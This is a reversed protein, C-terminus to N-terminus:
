PIVGTNRLCQMIAEASKGEHFFMEIRKRSAASISRSLKSDSLITEIATAIDLPKGPAILLGTKGHEVLEPVGGVRTAVVPVGVAMAEMTAVGLAEEMSALVFVHANELERCVQLESVAGLLIVNEDLSSQAVQQELSFRTRGGPSDDEGAIRLAVEIGRSKLLRVAEVVDTQRKGPNLRGCSFVRCREGPKWPAYSSSRCFTKTDVGMPAKKILRPLHGWPQHEVDRILSDAVVICFAAHKWKEGQNPGYFSLNGHLTLSYTIGSLLYAYLAINASDACSHVHVHRWGAERSRRALIAGCFALGLHRIRGKIGEAEARRIAAIVQGWKFVGPILLFFIAKLVQSIAPPYLYTTREMAHQAWEHSVLKEPPKKTSVLDASIGIRNLAQLERWFFAHTQAPFEPVFYGIKFKTDMEEMGDDTELSNAM